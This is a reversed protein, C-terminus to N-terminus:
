KSRGIKKGKEGKAKKGGKGSGKEAAENEEGEAARWKAKMRGAVMAAKRAVRKKTKEEMTVKRTAMRRRTADAKKAAVDERELKQLELWVSKEQSLNLKMSYLPARLRSMSRM